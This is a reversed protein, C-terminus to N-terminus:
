GPLREFIEDNGAKDAGLRARLDVGVIRLDGLAAAKRDRLKGIPGREAFEEVLQLAVFEAFNELILEVERERSPRGRDGNATLAALPIPADM